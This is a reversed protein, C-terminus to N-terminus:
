YDIIPAIEDQKVTQAVIKTMSDLAVSQGEYEAYLV